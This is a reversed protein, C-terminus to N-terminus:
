TSTKDLFIKIEEPKIRFQRGIKSSKLDGNKILRRITTPSLKFMEAVEPITKLNEKENLKLNSM